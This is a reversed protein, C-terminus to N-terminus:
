GEKWAIDLPPTQKLELKPVEGGQSLATESRSGDPVMSKASAKSKSASRFLGSRKSRPTTSGSTTSLSMSASMKGWTSSPNRLRPKKDFWRTGSETHRRSGTPRTPKPEHPEESSTSGVPSMLEAYSGSDVKLSSTSPHPKLPRPLNISFSESLPSIQPPLALLPVGSATRATGYVEVAPSRVKPVPSGNHRIDKDRKTPTRDYDSKSPSQVASTEGSSMGSAKRFKPFAKIKELAKKTSGFGKSGFNNDRETASPGRAASPGRLKTPSSSSSSSSSKVQRALSSSQLTSPRRKLVRSFFSSPPVNSASQIGTDVDLEEWDEEGLQAIAGHMEVSLRAIPVNDVSEIQPHRRIIQKPSGLGPSPISVIDSVSLGSQPAGSPLRLEHSLRSGDTSLGPSADQSFRRSLITTASHRGTVLGLRLQNKVPRIPIPQQKPSERHPTASHHSLPSAATPTTGPSQRPTVTDPGPLDRFTALQSPQTADPPASPAADDAEESVVAPSEEELMGEVDDTEMAAPHATNEELEARPTQNVEEETEAITPIPLDVEDVKAEDQEEDEEESVEADEAGTEEEEAGNESGFEEAIDTGDEEQDPVDGRSWTFSALEKWFRACELAYLDNDNLPTQNKTDEVYRADHTRMDVSPEEELCLKPFYRTNYEQM